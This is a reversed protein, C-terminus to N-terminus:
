DIKVIALIGTPILGTTHYSGSTQIHSSAVQMDVIFEILCYGSLPALEPNSFDGYIDGWTDGKSDGIQVTYVQHNECIVLFRDGVQGFKTGMGCLYDGRSNKRIGTTPDIYTGTAWTIDKSPYFILREADEACYISINNGQLEPVSKLFLFPQNISILIPPLLILLVNKLKM